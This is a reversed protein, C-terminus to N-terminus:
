SAELCVDIYLETKLVERNYLSKFKSGTLHEKEWCDGNNRHYNNVHLLLLVPHSVSNHSLEFKNQLLINKDLNIKSM